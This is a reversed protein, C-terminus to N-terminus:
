PKVVTVESRVCGTPDSSARAAAVADDFDFPQACWVAVLREPGPTGDVRVAQPLDVPQPAAPATAAHGDGGQPYCLYAEDRADVGVVMLYGPLRHQVTFGLRDGARIPDGARLRRSTDGEDVYVRLQVGAGRLRIGDGPAGRLLPAAVLLAVACLLAAALYYRTNNAPRGATLPPLAVMGYHRAAALRDRCTACAAVHAQADASGAGDLVDELALDHLHGDTRFPTM